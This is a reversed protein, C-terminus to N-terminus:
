ADRRTPKPASSGEGAASLARAATKRALYRSLPADNTEVHFTIWEPMRQSAWTAVEDTLGESDLERVLTKVDELFLHHATRHANREPYAYEEMLADETAFHGVTEDWLASLASRTAAADDAEVARQVEDMLRLIARHQADIEPHGVALDAPTSAM